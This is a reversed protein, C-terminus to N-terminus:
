NPLYQSNDNIKLILYVLYFINLNLILNNIKFVPFISM